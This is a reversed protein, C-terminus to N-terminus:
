RCWRWVVVVVAAAAVLAVAALEVATRRVWPDRVVEADLGISWRGGAAHAQRMNDDLSWLRPDTTM